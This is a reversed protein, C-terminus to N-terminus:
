HRANKNTDAILIRTVQNTLPKTFTAHM